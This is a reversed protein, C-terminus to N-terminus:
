SEPLTVAFRAGGLPSTGVSIMGGHREVIRQVVALGLGAGGSDRARGEQLRGFRDFITAREDEPVGAGDDDVLLLIWGPVPSGSDRAPGVRGLSVRVVSRGHRAANDVLHGLM